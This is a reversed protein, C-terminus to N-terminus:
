EFNRGDVTRGDAYVIRFGLHHALRWWRTSFMAKEAANAFAGNALANLLVTEFAASEVWDVTRAYGCLMTAKTRQLFSQLVADPASLVGCCGFYLRRGECKGELWEAVEDLEVASQHTLYLQKSGGHMAFYGVRYASYQRLAWRELFYRLEEVTAVDKHIYRVLDLRELLELTPLVSSRNALDRDWQGEVCFIGGAM